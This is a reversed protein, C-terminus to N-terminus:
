LRHGHLPELHLQGAGAPRARAAPRRNIALRQLPQERRYQTAYGRWISPGEARWFSVAFLLRRVRDSLWEGADPLASEGVAYRRVSRASEHGRRNSAGPCLEM